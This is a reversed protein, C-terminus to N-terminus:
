KFEQNFTQKLQNIGLRKSDESQGQKQKILKAM